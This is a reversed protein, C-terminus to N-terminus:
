KSRGRALGSGTRSGKRWGHRRLGFLFFVGPLVPDGEKAAQKAAPIVHVGEAPLAGVACARAVHGCAKLIPVGDVAGLM